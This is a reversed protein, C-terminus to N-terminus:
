WASYMEADCPLWYHVVPHVDIAQVSDLDPPDCPIVIDGKIQRVFREGLYM